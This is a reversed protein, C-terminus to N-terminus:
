FELENLTRQISCIYRTLGDTISDAANLTVDENSFQPPMVHSSATPKYMEKIANQKEPSTTERFVMNEEESGDSPMAVMATTVAENKIEMVLLLCFCLSHSIM